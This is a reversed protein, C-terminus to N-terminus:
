DAGLWEGDFGAADTNEAVGGVAEVDDGLVGDVRQCGLM